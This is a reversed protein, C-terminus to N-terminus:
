YGNAKKIENARELMYDTTLFSIPKQSYAKQYTKMARQPNGTEEEWRAEFYTALMTNPYHEAAMKSLDKFDDWRKTKEIAQNIALFDNLRIQKQLGFLENITNYKDQLYESLSISTQLLTTQYEKQSIPRYIEFINDIASPIAKGVLSYHTAGEFNDFNYNLLTNNVEQLQSDFAKISEQLQPIDDSGTALYYWIKKDTKEFVEGLRVNMKPAYDPSLNIYADFIPKDKLLYFNMFNATLDHGVIVHFPAVRYKNAINQMLEMGLFEFFAAGNESPLYRDEDYYSDAERSRGQNVGIVIMEPADEWYSYYDIMGAVPEFLYDGDLVLMVPYFKEKNEEYNRPLQIKIERSTGLKESSITEYTTQASIIWPYIIVVALLLKKIM